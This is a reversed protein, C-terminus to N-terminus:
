RFAGSSRCDKLLVPWSVGITVSRPLYPIRLKETVAQVFRNVGLRGSCNIRSPITPAMRSADKKRRSARCSLRATLLKRHLLEDIGTMPEEHRHQSCNCSGYQDLPPSSSARRGKSCTFHFMEPRQGDAILKAHVQQLDARRLKQDGRVPASHASDVRNGRPFPKISWDIERFRRCSM